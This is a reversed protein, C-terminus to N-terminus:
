HPIKPRTPELKGCTWFSQSRSYTRNGQSPDALWVTSEDIGRLVSFHENKRHELYVIGPMKLKALQDYSASFGIARFGFKLLAQQMYEFSTKNDGIDMVKLLDM